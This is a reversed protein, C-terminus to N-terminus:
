CGVGEGVGGWLVVAGGVFLYIFLNKDYCWWCLDSEWQSKEGKCLMLVIFIMFSQWIYSFFFPGVVVDTYHLELRSILLSHCTLYLIISHVYYNYYFGNWTLKVHFWIPDLSSCWIIKPWISMHIFSSYFEPFEYDWKPSQNELRGVM